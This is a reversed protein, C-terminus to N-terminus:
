DFQEFLEDHTDHIVAIWTGVDDTSHPSKLKVVPHKEDTQEYELPPAM